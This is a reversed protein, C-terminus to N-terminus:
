RHNNKATHGSPPSKKKEHSDDDRHKPRSSSPGRSPANHNGYILGAHSAADKPFGVIELETEYDLLQEGKIARTVRSRTRRILDKTPDLVDGGDALDKALGGMAQQFHKRLRLLEQTRLNGGFAKRGDVFIDVFIMSGERRKYTLEVSTGLIFTVTNIPCVLKAICRPAPQNPPWVDLRHTYLVMQGPVVRANATGMLSWSGCNLTKHDVDIAVKRKMSVQGYNPGCLVALVCELTYMHEGIASFPSRGGPVFDAAPETAALGRDCLIDLMANRD